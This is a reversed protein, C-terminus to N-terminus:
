YSEDDMPDSDGLNGEAFVEFSKDDRMEDSLQLNRALTHQEIM